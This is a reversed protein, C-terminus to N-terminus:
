RGWCRRYLGSMSSPVLANPQQKTDLAPQGRDEVAAPWLGNAVHDLMQAVGSGMFSDLDTPMGELRDEYSSARAFFLYHQHILSLFKALEMYRYVKTNPSLGPAVTYAM